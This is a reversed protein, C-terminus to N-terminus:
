YDAWFNMVAVGNTITKSVGASNYVKCNFTIKVKVYKYGNDEVSIRDTIIFSSGTQNATGQDTTWQDQASDYWVIRVGNAAETSYSYPQKAFFNTFKASDSPLTYVFTGKYFEIVGNGNNEFGTGYVSESSDPPFGLLSSNSFYSSVTSGTVYSGATGDITFAVQPVSNITVTSPPPNTIPNNNDDDDDKSCGNLAMASIVALIGIMLQKTKM